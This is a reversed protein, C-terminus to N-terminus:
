FLQIVSSLFGLFCQSYSSVSIMDVCGKSLEHLKVHEVEM